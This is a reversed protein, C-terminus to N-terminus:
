AFAVQMQDVQRLGLHSLKPAAGVLKTNPALKAIAALAEELEARALAEGLCRHAGAGFIPHWKPHDTRHIDFSDPNKYVEPDRLASVVCFLLMGGEPVIHGDIDIPELAIRPIGEVVPEFRLGEQVVNKKLGDPNACFDRWQDPHQLLTSLTMCLTGRTTDSGALILAMIQMRLEGESLGGTGSEAILETLFDKRPANRRSAILGDIYADFAIQNQEIAERRGPHLPGLGEAALPIFSLFKPLEERPVGLIEAIIRAPLQAAVLNLFDVHGKGLNDNVIESVLETIHPRMGDMLKFAFTRAMPARRRQHVDGNSFLVGDSNAQYIPGSTIGQGVLAENEWQRTKASTILDFHRYRMAFIMNNPGIALPSTERIKNHFAYVNAGPPLDLPIAPLNTMTAAPM